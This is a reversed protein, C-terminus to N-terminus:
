NPGVTLHTPIKNLHKKILPWVPLTQAMSLLHQEEPLLLLLMLHDQNLGAGLVETRFARSAQHKEINPRFHIEWEDPLDAATNGLKQRGPHNTLCDRLTELYDPKDLLRSFKVIVQDYHQTALPEVLDWNLSWLLPVLTEASMRVLDDLKLPRGVWPGLDDVVNPAAMKRLGSNFIHDPADARVVGLSRRVGTASAMYETFFRMSVGRLAQALEDYRVRKGKRTQEHRLRAEALKQIPTDWKGEHYQSLARLYRLHYHSCDRLLRSATRDSIWSLQNVGFRYVCDFDLPALDFMEPFTPNVWGSHTFFTHADSVVYGDWMGEPTRVKEILTLGEKKDGWLLHACALSLVSDTSAIDGTGAMTGTEIVESLSLGLEVLNHPTVRPVGETEQEKKTYYGSEVLKQPAQTGYAFLMARWTSPIPGYSYTTNFSSRVQSRFRELLVQNVLSNTIDVM